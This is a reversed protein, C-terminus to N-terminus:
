GYLERLISIVRPQNAKTSKGVITINGDINQFYVRAGDRARAEFVNGFVNKTGIGPNLNGNALQTTLADISRQQSAGLRRAERVLRVDRGIASCINHVLVPEDGVRVFFTHIDDVTLNFTAGTRLSPWDIGEVALQEGDASLVLDGADLADARQWAQDTHNWFPHDETTAVAHGDIRLDVLVDEHVWLHTVERAGQEGTEPDAAYVHDGVKVFAIPKVTGDAMLVGTGASFSCAAGTVGTTSRAGSGPNWASGSPASTGRTGVARGTPAGRGTTRTSFRPGGVSVNGAIEGAILDVTRDREGTIATFQSTHIVPAYSDVDGDFSAPIYYPNGGNTGREVLLGSDVGYDFIAVAQVVRLIPIGSDAYGDYLERSTLGQALSNVMINIAELEELAYPMEELDVLGDGGVPVAMNQIDIPSGDPNQYGVFDALDSDESILGTPDIRNVPDNGAYAYLSTAVEGVAPGAPDVTLFRRLEPDHDRAKLHITPGIHLEGRYGLGLEAAPEGTPAPADPQGFPAFTPSVSVASGIIDGLPGVAVTEASGGNTSVLAPGVGNILTLDDTGTWGLPRAVRLTRDWTMQWTDVAIGDVGDVRHTVTDVLNDPTWTREWSDVTPTLRLGRAIIRWGTTPQQGDDSLGLENTFRDGVSELWTGTSRNRLGYWGDDREALQWQADHGGDVASPVLDDCALTLGTLTGDRSISSAATVAADYSCWRETTWSNSGWGGRWRGYRWRHWGNGSHPDGLADGEYVWGRWQGDANVAVCLPTVSQVRHADGTARVGVLVDDSACLRADASAASAAGACVLDFDQVGDQDWGALGIATRGEAGCDTEARKENSDIWGNGVTHLMWPHGAPVPAGSVESKPGGADQATLLEGTGVNRVTFWGSDLRTFEWYSNKTSWWRSQDELFADTGINTLAVTRGDLMAAAPATTAVSVLRGRADYDYAVVDGNPLTVEVLRGADDYRATGALDAADVTALQNAADTGFTTAESSAAPEVVRVLNGVADWEYEWQAGDREAHILQGAEDYAFAWQEAGTIETVRGAADYVFHWADSKTEKKGKGDDLATEIAYSTLQEGKWTWSRRGGDPFDAVLPRGDDDWTYTTTGHVSHTMAVLRDLEDYDYDVVDGNPYTLQTRNSALDWAYSIVDGDPEIVQTVNGAEDYAYETVRGDPLDEIATLRNLDDWTYRQSSGDNWTVTEVRDGADYTVQQTRGSADEVGALRGLDDFAFATVRGLPDESSTMRDTVDYVYTSANGNQDVWRTLNLRDDYGFEAMGGNADTIANIVLSDRTLQVPGDDGLQSQTLAGNGNYQWDARVGAPSITAAIRGEEDFETSYDLGEPSVLVELRSNDDYEYRVIRDGPQITASMRGAGDYAFRTVNGRADTVSDLRGAASYSYTVVEDPRPGTISSMRGADDYALTVRIEDRSGAAWTETELRGFADYALVHEIGNPDLTRIPRDANDYEEVSLVSGDPRTVTTVNGEEDYNYTYARATGDVAPEAEASLRGLRGTDYTWTAADGAAGVTLSQLQTFGNWEFDTRLGRQDTLDSILGSGSAFDYSAEVRSTPDEAFLADRFETVRGTGDFSWAMSSGTRDTFERLQGNDDWDRREVNGMPDTTEVIRGAADYAFRTVLETGNEPTVMVTEVRREPTYTYTTTVGDADTSDVLLGDVVTNITTDSLPADIRVPIESAGEYTYTTEAGWPTVRSRLRIQSPGDAPIVPPNPESATDSTYYWTWTWTGAGPVTETLPNGVEDYTIAGVLEDTDAAASARRDFVREPDGAANRLVRMEEGNPDTIDITYGLDDHAYIYTDTRTSGPSVEATLEVTTEHTGADYFFTSTEGAGNRQAVVRGATDYENAIILVSIEGDVQTMRTIRGGDDTEYAMVNGNPETVTALHGRENYEFYMQRDVQDGVLADIRAIVGNRYRIRYWPGASSRVNVIRPGVWGIEVRESNPFTVTAVQNSDNFLWRSGDFHEIVWRTGDRRLVGDFSPPILYQGANDPDPVFVVVRGDGLTVAVDGNAREVATVQHSLRWGPGFLDFSSAGRDEAIYSETNISNYSRGLAMGHLQNGFSLDTMHDVFNGTAVHVPDGETFIADNGGIGEAPDFDTQAVTHVLLYEVAGAVPPNLSGGGGRLSESSGGGYATVVGCGNEVVRVWNRYIGRLDIREDACAVATGVIRLSNQREGSDYVTAYTFGWRNARQAADASTRLCTEGGAGDGTIADLTVVCHPFVARRDDGVGYDLTIFNETDGTEYNRDGFVGIAVDGYALRADNRIVNASFLMPNLGQLGTSGCFQIILRAVTLPQGPELEVYGALEDLSTLGLLAAQLEDCGTFTSQHATVVFRLTREQGPEIQSTTFRSQPETGPAELLVETGAPLPIDGNNAVDVEMVFSSHAVVIPYYPDLDPARVTVGIDSSGALDNLLFFTRRDEDFINEAGPALAALVARLQIPGSGEPVVIPARVVVSGAQPITGNFDAIVSTTNVAPGSITFRVNAQGLATGLTLPGPGLNHVLAVVEYEVGPILYLSEDLDLLTITALNASGGAPIALGPAPFRQGDAIAVGSVTYDQDRDPIFTFEFTQVAGSEAPLAGVCNVIVPQDPNELPPPAVSCGEPVQPAPGSGMNLSLTYRELGAVDNTRAVRLTASTTGDVNRRENRWDLTLGTSAFAPVTVSAQQRNPTTVTAIVEATSSAKGTTVNFRTFGAEGQAGLGFTCTLTANGTCFDPVGATDLLGSITMTVTTPVPSINDVQVVVDSTSGGADDLTLSLSVEADGGGGDPDVVNVAGSGSGPIPFSGPTPGVIITRVLQVRFSSLQPSIAGPAFVLTGDVTRSDGVALTGSLGDFNQSTIASGGTGTAVLDLTANADSDLTLPISGNNTFSVTVPVSLGAVVETGPDPRTVTLAVSEERNVAPIQVSASVSNPESVSVTVTRDEVLRQTTITFRQAGAEGQPALGFTCTLESGGTCFDDIGTPSELGAIRLTVNTPVPSANSVQITVDATEDGVAADATVSVRADGGADPDIVNVSTSDSDFEIVVAGDPGIVTRNLAVAFSTLQPSIAGPGFVISLPISTSAGPAVSGSLAGANITALPAGSIPSVSLSIEDSDLSLPANGTNRISLPFSVSQGATVEAGPNPGGISVEAGENIPISPVTVSDSTTNPQSVSATVGYASTSRDTTVNLVRTGAEGVAALSFECRLPSGSCAGDANRPNQLGTLTLVVTTPTPTSNSVTTRIVASSDTLDVAGVNVAVVAPAGDPDAINVSGGISGISSEIVGNPGDALVILEVTFSTFEIANAGANFVLTMPYERAAGVPISGSEAIVSSQLPAGGTRRARLFVEGGFTIASDGTNTVAVTLNINQGADYQRGNALDPIRLSASQVAAAPGAPVLIAAFVLVLSALWLGRFRPKM